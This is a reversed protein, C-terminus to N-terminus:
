FFSFLGQVYPARRKRRKAKGAKPKRGKLFRGKSDRGRRGVLKRKTVRRRPRRTPRPLGLGNLLLFSTAGGSVTSQIVNEATTAAAKAAAEVVMREQKVLQNVTVNGFLSTAIANQVVGEIDAGVETKVQPPRAPEPRAFLRNNLLLTRELNNDIAERALRRSTPSRGEDAEIERLVNNDAGLRDIQERIGTAEATTYPKDEWNARAYTRIFRPM